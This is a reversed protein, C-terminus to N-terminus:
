SIGVRYSSLIAKLIRLRNSRLSAISSKSRSSRVPRTICPAGTRLSAFPLRLFATSRSSGPSQRARPHCRNRSQVKFRSCQVLFSDHGGGSTLFYNEAHGSRDNQFILIHGFSSAIVHLPPSLVCPHGMSHNGPLSGHAVLFLVALTRVGSGTPAM